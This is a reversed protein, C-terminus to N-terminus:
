SRDAVDWIISLITLSEQFFGLILLDLSPAPLTRSRLFARLRTSIAAFFSFAPQGQASETAKQSGKTRAGGAEKRSRQYRHLQRVNNMAAAGIMLMGIRPKGRVPVKGNGFPHKVARVTAEVAPRCTSSAPGNMRVDSSAPPSRECGTALVAARERASTPSARHPCRDRLPCGECGASDFAARYRGEKRRRRERSAATLVPLAKGTAWQPM